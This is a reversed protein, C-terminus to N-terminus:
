KSARMQDPLVPAELRAGVYDPIEGFRVDHNVWQERAEKLDDMTRAVFNWWLLIPTEFPEGGILLVRNGKKVEIEIENLSTDLVVMNDATLEHGNVHAVGDLAIFGYEFEPNLPIRTKTDQTAILDVGVLLTHVVVPSTTELYEGVLVTFELGDKEVVPLEPYHEFKPDMNRKHDPLAIWLQAAHMQTETDPAVET